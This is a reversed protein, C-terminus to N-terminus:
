SGPRYKIIINLFPHYSTSMDYKLYIKIFPKERNKKIESM